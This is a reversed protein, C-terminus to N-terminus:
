PFCWAPGRSRRKHLLTRREASGHRHRTRHTSHFIATDREEIVRRAAFDFTKMPVGSSSLFRRAIQACGIDIANQEDSASELFVTRTMDSQM